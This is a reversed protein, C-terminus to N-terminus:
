FRLIKEATEIYKSPPNFDLNGGDYEVDKLALHEIRTWRCQRVEELINREKSEIPIDPMKEVSRRHVQYLFIAHVLKWFSFEPWTEPVFHIYAQSTEWMMFDSLRLNGGTRILMDVPSMDVLHQAQAILYESCECGRLNGTIEDKSGSFANLSQLIANRGTYAVAINFRYPELHRTKVMMHAIRHQLKVPLLGEWNGIIQICMDTNNGADIEQMFYTCTLFVLEMLNEVEAKSRKFNEISFLYATIEKIHLTRQWQLLKHILSVGIKHGVEVPLGLSRSYRRNGDLIIAVHDPIKGMQTISAGLIELISM